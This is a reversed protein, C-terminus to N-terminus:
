DKTTPLIEALRLLKSSLKLDAQGAAETNIRFRVKQQDMLLCIMGGRSAFDPMDSVTLVPAHDLYGRIRSWNREESRSVFLIHCHTSEQLSRLRRVQMPHGHVHENRVLDDLTRGFPDAGLIGIVFPANTTAFAELPWETFQAFNFVMAAKIDYELAPQAAFSKPGLLLLLLLALGPLKLPRLIAM